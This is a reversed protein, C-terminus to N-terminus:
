PICILFEKKRFAFFGTIRFDVERIRSCFELKEIVLLFDDNSLEKGNLDLPAFRDNSTQKVNKEEIVDVIRTLIDKIDIICFFPM